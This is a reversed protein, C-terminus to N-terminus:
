AEDCIFEHAIIKLCDGLPLGTRVGRVIIDMADAFHATFKAQRRNIAAKLIFRPLGFGLVVALGLCLKPEVGMVFAGGGTLVFLIVSIILFTQPQMSWNAQVLRAPLSKAKRKKTKQQEEIKGLTEEIQKRRGGSEEVKLRSLINSSASQKGSLKKVRASSGSSEGGFLLLGLCVIGGAAALAIITNSEM